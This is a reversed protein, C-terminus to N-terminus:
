DLLPETPTRPNLRNHLKYLAYGLLCLLALWPTAPHQFTWALLICSIGSAILARGWGTRFKTLTGWLLGGIIMLVGARTFQIAALILPDTTIEPATEGTAPLLRLLPNGLTPATATCGANGLGFLLIALIGLTWVIIDRLSLTEHDPRM